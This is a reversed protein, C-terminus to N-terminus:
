PMGRSMEALRLPSSTTALASCPPSVARACIAANNNFSGSGGGPSAISMRSCFQRASANSRAAQPRSLASGSQSAFCGRVPM